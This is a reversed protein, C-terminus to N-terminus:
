PRRRDGPGHIVGQLALLLLALGVFATGILTPAVRSGDRAAMAVDPLSGGTPPAPTATPQTGAVVTIRGTMSPHPTCLYEYTGAATFTISASEGQELLGTDWAGGTDTATHAVADLNTWTVTDGATITLDAPAYAFDAIEVLHGAGARVPVVGAAFALAVWLLSLGILLIVSPSPRRRTARM